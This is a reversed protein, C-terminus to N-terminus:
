SIVVFGHLAACIEIWLPVTIGDTFVKVEKVMLLRFFANVSNIGAWVQGGDVALIIYRM